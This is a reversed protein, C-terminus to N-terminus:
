SASARICLSVIAWDLTVTKSDGGSFSGEVRDKLSASSPTGLWLTM